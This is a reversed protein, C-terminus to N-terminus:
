YCAQADELMFFVQAELLESAGFASTNKDTYLLAQEAVQRLDTFKRENVLATTQYFLKNLHHHRPSVQNEMMVDSPGNTTHRLLEQGSYTKENCNEYNLTAVGQKYTSSFNQRM